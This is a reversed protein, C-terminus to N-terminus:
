ASATWPKWCMRWRLPSATLTSSTTATPAKSGAPISCASRPTSSPAWTTSAPKCCTVATSTNRIRKAFPLVQPTRNAPLAALPVAEKVRFIHAQVPGDTRSAYLFTEAESITVDAQCNQQRLIGAFEIAGCTRGPHLVIIQGDQLHPALSEAIEAHASSPLVVMITKAHQVAQAIDSTIIALRGFGHPVGEGDLDIGGLEQIAAIRQPSRNYLAVDFGMLALHAAMAKGGHGAGIIAFQISQTM